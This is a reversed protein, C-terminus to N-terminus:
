DHDLIVIDNVWLPFPIVVSAWMGFLILLNFWCFCKNLSTECISILCTYKDQQHTSIQWVILVPKSQPM